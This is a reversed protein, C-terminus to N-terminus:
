MVLYGCGTSVGEMIGHSSNQKTSDICTTVQCEHWFVNIDPLPACV